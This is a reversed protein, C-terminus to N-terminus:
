NNATAVLLKKMRVNEAKMAQEERRLMKEKAKAEELDRALSDNRLKRKLNSRAAAERNRIQRETAQETGECRPRRRRRGTRKEVGMDLLGTNAGANLQEGMGVPADLEVCGVAGLEHNELAFELELVDVGDILDQRDPWLLGARDLALRDAGDGAALGAEELGVAAAHLAPAALAPPVVALQQMRMQAVKACLGRVFGRETRTWSRSQVVLHNAERIAGGKMLRVCGAGAFMDVHMNLSARCHRFDLPHAARRALVTCNCQAAAPPAGCTPCPRFERAECLVVLADEIGETDVFSRGLVARRLVSRRMRLWTHTRATQGAAQFHKLTVVDSTADDTAILLDGTSDCRLIRAFISATHHAGWAPNSSTREVPLMFEASLTGVSFAPISVVSVHLDNNAWSSAFTPDLISANHEIGVAYQVQSPSALAALDTSADGNLLFDRAWTDKLFTYIGNLATTSSRLSPSEDHPISTPQTDM